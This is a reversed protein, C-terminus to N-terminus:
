NGTESSDVPSVPPHKTHSNNSSGEVATISWSCAEHEMSTLGCILRSQITVDM